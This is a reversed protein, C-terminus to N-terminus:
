AYVTSWTVQIRSGLVVHMTAKMGMSLCEGTLVNGDVSLRVAGEQYITAIVASHISLETEIAREFAHVSFRLTLGTDDSTQFSVYGDSLSEEAPPSKFAQVLEQADPMIFQGLNLTM